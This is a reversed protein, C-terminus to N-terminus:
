VFVLDTQTLLPSTALLFVNIAQDDASAHYVLEGTTKQYSLFPGEVPFDHPDTFLGLKTGAALGLYTTGIELRDKGPMFDGITDTGTSPDGFVFVDNGDGGFFLDAGGYDDFRDNGIGGYIIDNGAGGDLFDDGADGYLRDSGERGYLRDNQTGGRLLDDGKGGDLYDAGAGGLIVDNGERGYFSNVGGNGSLRDAFDSGEIAEIKSFRDGAAAGNNNAPDALDVTIRSTAYRYSVLDHGAGGMFVADGGLDFLRDDGAGGSLRDRLGTAFLLDNGDGGVLSGSTPRSSGPQGTASGSHDTVLLRTSLSAAIAAPSVNAITVLDIPKEAGSIRVITGSGSRALTVFGGAALDGHWGMRLALVSLDLMDGEAPNFDTIIDGGEAPAYYAFRDAGSGGSLRDAGPGGWIYDNGSEGRITDAAATGLLRDAGAGGVLDRHSGAGGRVVTNQAKIGEFTFRDLDSVEFWSNSILNDVPKRLSTFAYWTLDSMQVNAIRIDRSDGNGYEYFQIGRGNGAAAVDYMSNSVGRAGLVGWSNIVVSDHIAALRGESHWSFATATAGNVIVNTAVLGFDAGYKSPNSSTASLGVANNDVAHRVDEAYLGNVYTGFSGASHVAYGRQGASTDDALNFAASQRISVNVGDVVNIGTSNGDRVVLRDVQAEVASRIQLLDADWTAHSQDGRITGNTVVAKGSQFASARVNTQYQAAYELQGQLILTNGDVAAVQMAQGLRTVAGQDHPLVDDSYIKVWDGPALKGAGAYTVTVAGDQKGLVARQEPAHSGKVTLVNVDAAQQLVSGNLDFTISRRSVDLVLGKNISVTQGAALRVISGDPAAALVAQIAQETAGRALQISIVL